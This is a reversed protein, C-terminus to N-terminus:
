PICCLALILARYLQLQLLCGVSFLAVIWCQCRFLACAYSFYLVPMIQFNVTCFLWGAYAVSLVALLVCCFGQLCLAVAWFGAV